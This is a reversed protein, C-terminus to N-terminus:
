SALEAALKQRRVHAAVISKAIKHGLDIGPKEIFNYTLYSV